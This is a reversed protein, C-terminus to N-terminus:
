EFLWLHGYGLADRHYPDPYPISKNIPSKGSWLYVAGAPTLWEGPTLRQAQGRHPRKITTWSQWAVPESAAYAKIAHPSKLNPYPLSIRKQGKQWLAGTLLVAGRPNDVTPTLWWDDLEPIPNIAVPISGAGLCGWSPPQYNQKEASSIIKVLISWGPQMLTAMEAFFGAEDKVLYDERSNHTLLLSQWVSDVPILSKLSLFGKNWLNALLRGLILYEGGILCVDSLEEQHEPRVSWTQQTENWQSNFIEQPIQNPEIQKLCYVTQPLPVYIEDAYQHWHWFPGYIQCYRPLALCAALHHGNPPWRCGVQGSNQGVPTLNGIAVAGSPTIRYWGTM